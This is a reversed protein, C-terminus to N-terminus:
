GSGGILMRWWSRPQTAANAERPVDPGEPESSDETATEPAHPAGPPTERPAELERITRAQETTARSLQVIIEDARLRAEQEKELLRELHLVRERMAEMTEMRAEHAEDRVRSSGSMDGVTDEDVIVYVRKSAEDREYGIRDREIRKRVADVTIGLHEAAEPVTLRLNGSM